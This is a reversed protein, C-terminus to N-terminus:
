YDQYLQQGTREIVEFVERGYEEERGSFSDSDEDLKEIPIDFNISAASKTQAQEESSSSSSSSGDMEAVFETM